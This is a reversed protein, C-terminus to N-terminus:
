AKLMNKRLSCSQITADFAEARQTSDLRTVVSDQLVRHIKIRRNLRDILNHDQLHRLSQQLTFPKKIYM